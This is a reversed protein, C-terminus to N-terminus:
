ADQESSSVNRQYWTGEKGGLDSPDAPGLPLFGNKLLVRQSAPNAHATAARLTSVGHHTSALSCLDGVSATAVGHGAVQRAVRYGLHAVGEEAFTLNFRGLVAGDDAVLVYYAGLGAEQEAVLASHRESFQEFYADGRDSISAAFYTRNATEFALVAAAHDSRLLQLEPM